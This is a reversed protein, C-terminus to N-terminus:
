AADHPQRRLNGQRAQGGGAWQPDAARHGTPGDVRSLGHAAMLEPETPLRAGSPFEGADIRQALLSALQLYLPQASDRRLGGGVGQPHSQSPPATKMTPSPITM